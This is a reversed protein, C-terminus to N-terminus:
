SLLGLLENVKDVFEKEVEAMDRLSLDYDSSVKYDSIIISEDLLRPFEYTLIADDIKRIIGHEEATLDNLNYSEWVTNQVDEEIIQYETLCSKVPRTIDSVYAESADHLLCALQIRPPYGLIKAEEACYLSHQAVSYFHKYHGNARCMLSLAHAIDITKIEEVRPDLPYFKIKSYTCIFNGKRM